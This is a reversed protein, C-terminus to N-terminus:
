NKKVIPLWVEFSANAPNSDLYVEIDPADAYEYGSAPLWETVARKEIEQIAGPMTGSGPFVAWTCAPITYEDMGEPVERDTAAAIFYYWTEGDLCASVGLVGMPEQNMLSVAKAVTGDTAAKGWFSPTARFCEDMDKPLQYKGGVIRISDKQVIRYEMKEEGKVSLQFRIPGYAKLSIGEKHASSPPFGHISQFARNFATPSEYGYRLAVDLVREGRSLDLAALTMRRRRIYESLPIGALYPFMRQFHYTSCCAIKAAREIEVEGTLNNEIYDLAENLQSLWNM